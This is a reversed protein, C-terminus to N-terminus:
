ARGGAGYCSSRPSGLAVFLFALLGNGWGYGLPGSYLQPAFLPFVFALLNSLMRAAANASASEGAGFEDFLYAYLGQSLMFSACCFVGIGVDIVPWPSQREVAWGYWFLGAPMVLTPAVLFPVRYEPVADDEEDHEESMASTTTEAAEPNSSPGTPAPLQQRHKDRQLRWLWDMLPGGTQTGIVAGVAIAIYNLSSETPTQGRDIWMQAFTSLVLFYISFNLAINLSLFTVIPRHHLLKLPRLLAIQIPYVINRLYPKTFPKPKVQPSLSSAAQSIRKLLIKGNTERLLLFGSVAIVASAASMIWFLLQWRLHQSVLGGVIPGLAPGLYPLLSAIALSRNVRPDTNSEQPFWIACKPFPHTTLLAAIHQMNVMKGRDKPGYMDALIPGTLSIGVSSASGALLRGLIMMGQNSGVPCLSNWLVYWVNCAIWVPKRGYLESLPGIIFPGFALGLTYVSFAVQMVSESMGLDEAIRGLAPAVISVSMIGVLHGLTIILAITLKRATPWNYPNRPDDPQWGAETATAPQQKESDNGVTAPVPPVEGLSKVPADHRKQEPDSMIEATGCDSLDSLGLARIQYVDGAPPRVDGNTVVPEALPINAHGPLLFQCAMGSKNPRVRCRRMSSEGDVTFDHPQIRLSHTGLVFSKHLIRDSGLWRAGKFGPGHHM